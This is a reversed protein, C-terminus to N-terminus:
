GGASGLVGDAAVEGCVVNARDLVDADQL